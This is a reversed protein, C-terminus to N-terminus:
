CEDRWLPKKEYMKEFRDYSVVCGNVRFGMVSRDQIPRVDTYGDTKTVLLCTGEIIFQEAKM